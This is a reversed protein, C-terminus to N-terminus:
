LKHSAPVFSLLSKSEIWPKVIVVANFTREGGDEERAAIKLYYKIGSVVQRQAAVVRSFTLFAGAATDKAGHGGLLNRNHEEVCFHGLEQVERNTEVDRVDTRGGVKRGAGGGNVVGGVFRLPGIEFSSSLSVSLLILALLLLLSSTHTSSSAMTQKRPPISLSPLYPLM